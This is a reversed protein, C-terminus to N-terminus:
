FHLLAIAKILTLQLSSRAYNSPNDVSSVTKMFSLNKTHTLTFSNFMHNFLLQPSWLNKKNKEEMETYHIPNELTCVAYMGSFKVVNSDTTSLLKNLLKQLYSFYVFM